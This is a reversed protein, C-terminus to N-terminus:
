DGDVLGQDAPPRSVLAVGLCGPGVHTAFAMGVDIVPVDIDSFRSTLEDHFRTIFKTDARSHLVALHAVPGAASVRRTIEQLGRWFTRTKGLLRAEGQGFAILPKIRLLSAVYSGIAGVRGSRRLYDISNLVGFIHTRLPLARLTDLVKVVPLGQELLRGAEVALWGSGMSIQQTDVVHVGAEGFEKAAVLAHDHTSSVRSATVLAIIEDAGESALEAYARLFELPAPAATTPPKSAHVLQEYFWDRNLSGDDPFTRGDLVLYAPLVKIQYRDVYAKPVDAVSDTLIRVQRGM